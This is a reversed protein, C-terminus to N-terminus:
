HEKAHQFSFTLESLNKSGLDLLQSPVHGPICIGADTQRKCQWGGMNLSVLDSYIVTVFTSPMLHMQRMMMM